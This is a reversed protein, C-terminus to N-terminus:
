PAADYVCGELVIAFRDDDFRAIPYGPYRTAAVILTPLAVCVDTTYEELHDLARPELAAATGAVITIGPMEARRSRSRSRDPGERWARRRPAPSGWSCAPATGSTCARSRSRFWHRRPRPR